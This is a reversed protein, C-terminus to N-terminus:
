PLTEYVKRWGHAIKEQAVSLPITGGCVMDHLFNEVLDKEHYGPAPDSAEPWLNAVDSPAGGLELPILHDLEYHKVSDTLGYADMQELKVRSSYSLTPRVTKTYGQVCITTSITDQSVRADISGPTCAPDPLGDRAVCNFTQTRASLSVPGADLNPHVRSHRVYLLSVLCCAFVVFFATRSFYSM